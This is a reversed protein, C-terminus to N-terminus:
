PKDRKPDERHEEAPLLEEKTAEAAASRRDVVEETADNSVVKDLPLMKVREINILWDSIHNDSHM